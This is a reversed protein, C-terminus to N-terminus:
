PQRTPIVDLSEILLTTLSSKVTEVADGATIVCYLNYWLLRRNSSIHETHVLQVGYYFSATFPGRSLLFFRTVLVIRIERRKREILQYM